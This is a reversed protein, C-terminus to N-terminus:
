GGREADLYARVDLIDTMKGGLMVGLATQGSFYRNSRLLWTDSAAPNPLLIQLAKYIACLHSIRDATYFTSRAPSGLLTIQHDISLKWADALAFFAALTESSTPTAPVFSTDQAHPM